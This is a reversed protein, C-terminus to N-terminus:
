YYLRTSSKAMGLRVVTIARYLGYGTFWLLFLKQGSLAHLRDTTARQRVRTEVDAFEHTVVRTASALEDAATLCAEVGENVLAVTTTLQLCVHDMWEDRLHVGYRLPM